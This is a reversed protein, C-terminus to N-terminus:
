RMAGETTLSRADRRREAGGRPNATQAAAIAGRTPAARMPTDAAASM